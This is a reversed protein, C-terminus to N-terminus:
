NKTTKHDAVISSEPEKIFARLLDESLFLPSIFATIDGEPNIIVSSPIYKHPLMKKLISDNMISPVSFATNNKEKWNQFFKEGKIGRDNVQSNVLLVQIKNGLANQLSDLKPFMKLCTSCWSAWFEILITKGKFDSLRVKSQTYNLVTNFELDPMKDGIALPKIPKQQSNAIMCLLIMVCLHAAKKM